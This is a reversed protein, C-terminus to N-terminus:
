TCFSKALTGIKETITVKTFVCKQQYSIFYKKLKKLNSQSKHKLLNEQTCCQAHLYLINGVQCANIYGPMDIRVLIKTETISIECQVSVYM